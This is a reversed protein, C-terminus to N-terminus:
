WAECWGCRRGRGGAVGWVVGGRGGAGKSRGGDSGVEGPGDGGEGVWRREFNLLHQLEHALTAPYVTALLDQRAYGNAQGDRLDNLYVIEGHNSGGESCDDSDDRGRVLDANGFYGILWGGNLHAGLEHTLLVVVKGNGDVDGPPGFAAVIAPWVRDEFASALTQVDPGEYEGLDDDDFYIEAHPTSAGLTAAKRVHRSFDLGRVVCFSGRAGSGLAEAPAALELALEAERARLVEHLAP